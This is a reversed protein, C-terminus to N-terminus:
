RSASSSACINTAFDFSEAAFHAFALPTVIHCRTVTNTVGSPSPIGSSSLYLQIFTFPPESCSFPTRFLHICGFFSQIPGFNLLHAGPTVSRTQSSNTSGTHGNVFTFSNSVFIYRRFSYFVGFFCLAAAAPPTYIIHLDRQM